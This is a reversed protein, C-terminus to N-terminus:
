DPLRGIRRLRAMNPAMGGPSKLEEATIDDPFRLGINNAYAIQTQGFFRDVTAYNAVFRGNVTLTGRGWEHALLFQLSDSHMQIDCENASANRVTLSSTIDFEVTCSHDWLLILCPQLIGDTRAKRIEDWDNKERLRCVYKEFLAKLEDMPVSKSTSGRTNAHKKYVSQWNRLPVSNSWDSGCEYSDGPYLVVPIAGAREILNCADHVRNGYRNLHSNDQHSFWSFSAFPIVFRPKFCTIQRRLQDAVVKANYEQLEHDDPNGSWHAFSFQTLLIDVGGVDRSLDMLPDEQLTVCDNMNLISVNDTRLHLWSDSNVTGCTIMVKSDLEHPVGDDLETVPYRHKRLFAAVKGDATRQYFSAISTRREEPVSLLAAPSFHDPHEHSIWLCTPELDEITDNSDVLLNWGDNFITGKLWPDCLLRVNEHKLLVSAHNVFEIITTM